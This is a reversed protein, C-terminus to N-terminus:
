GARESRTTRSQRAPPALNNESNGASQSSQGAPPAKAHSRAATAAVQGPLSHYPAARDASGAPAPRGWTARCLEEADDPGDGTMAVATAHQRIAHKDAHMALELLQTLAMSPLRHTTDEALSRACSALSRYRAAAPGPGDYLGHREIEAWAQSLHAAQEKLAPDTAASTASSTRSWVQYDKMLIRSGSGAHARGEYPGAKSSHLFLDIGTAHLRYAHMLAHHQLTKLAEVGGRVGAKGRIDAEDRPNADEVSGALALAGAAHALVQYRISATGPDDGLGTRSVTAWARSFEVIQPHDELSGGPRVSIAKWHNYDNEIIRSGSEAQARGGAYPSAMVQTGDGLLRPGITADDSDADLATNNMTSEKRTTGASTAPIAHSRSPYNDIWALGARDLGARDLETRARTVAVYALMAEARSTQLARPAPSDSAASTDTSAATGSPLARAPERFDSAVLVSDWELGKARHATSVTLDARGPNSLQSVVRLVGIAGHKDILRVSAALAAGAADTRVFAQVAHWSPFAALEANSTRGAAQLELAAQALRRMEQGGGALAVRRGADLAARAQVLAEANTRCVIARPSGVAGIVSDIRPTASLRFPGDLVDLWKNAEAAVAQGFRFSQSLHLRRDAPWSALADVAGRWGYIAQCSDGVVIAQVDRQGQVVAVIVPNADQAEDFMLYDAGIRPTSLQWMKLYHDHRFPLSGGPSRIDAWAREAYPVIRWTLEAFSAADVGNVPPVHRGSVVADASYCFREITGLAIRALHAPTLLLRDGLLLPQGIGLQNAVAWAPMRSARGGLRDAYQWGVARYALAHATVCDVRGPFAARASVATSRNYALYLGRRGTMAEAAVRLTTTKGTGAGAEIVVARGETCADVVAQQEGTSQIDTTVVM